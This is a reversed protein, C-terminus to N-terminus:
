FYCLIGISFLTGTMIRLWNNSFRLGLFQTTGDIILPFVFLPLFVLPIMFDFFRLWLGLIMGSIIGSCRACFYKELGFFWITRDKQHHCACFVYQKNEITIVLSPGYGQILGFKLNM